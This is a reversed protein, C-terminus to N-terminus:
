LKQALGAVQYKILTKLFSALLNAHKTGVKWVINKYQFFSLMCKAEYFLFITEILKHVFNTQYKWEYGLTSM